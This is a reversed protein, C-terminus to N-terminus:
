FLGSEEALPEGAFRRPVGASRLVYDGQNYSV